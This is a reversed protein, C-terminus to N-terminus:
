AKETLNYKAQIEKLLSNERILIKNELWKNFIKNKLLVEEHNLLCKLVIEIDGVSIGTGTEVEGKTITGEGTLLWLENIEPWKEIIIRAMPMSIDETGDLVARSNFIGKSKLIGDMQSANMKLFKLVEKFREASTLIDRNYDQKAM